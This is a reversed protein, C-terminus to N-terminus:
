GAEAHAQVERPDLRKGAGDGPVLRDATGSIIAEYKALIGVVRVEKEIRAEVRLPERHLEGLSQMIDVKERIAAMVIKLGAAQSQPNSAMRYVKWGEEKAMDLEVMHAHIVDAIEGASFVKDIWEHRRQWDSWISAERVNEQAALKPVWEGARVGAFHFRLMAKRRDRLEEAM